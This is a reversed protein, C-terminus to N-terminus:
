QCLEAQQGRARVLEFPVDFRVNKPRAPIPSFATWGRERLFRDLENDGLLDKLLADLSIAIDEMLDYFTDAQLTLKLPDCVAIYQGSRVRTFSWPVNANIQIVM